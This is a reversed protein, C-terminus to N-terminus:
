INIGTDLIIVLFTWSRHGQAPRRQDPSTEANLLRRTEQIHVWIIQLPVAYGRAAQNRAGCQWPDTGWCAPVEDDDDNEWKNINIGDLYGSMGM